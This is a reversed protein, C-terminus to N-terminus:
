NKKWHQHYMASLEAIKEETLQWQTAVVRNFDAIYSFEEEGDEKDYEMQDVLYEHWAAYDEPSFPWNDRLLEELLVINSKVRSYFMGTPVTFIEWDSEIPVFTNFVSFGSIDKLPSRLTKQFVISEPDDEKIWSFDSASIAKVDEVLDQVNDLAIIKKEYKGSANKLMYTVTKLYGADALAQLNKEGAEDDKLTYISIEAVKSYNQASYIKKKQADVVILGYESPATVDFPFYVSTMNQRFKGTAKNKEYDDRMLLWQAMFEKFWHEFNGNYLSVQSFYYPIINTWRDMKWLNGDAEKVTIAVNGGM